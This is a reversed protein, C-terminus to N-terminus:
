ATAEQGSAPLTLLEDVSVELFAAIAIVEDIQFKARGNMRDNFASRSMGVGEAIALDSKRRRAKAVRVNEAIADQSTQTM